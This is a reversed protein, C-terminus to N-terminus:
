ARAHIFRKIFAQEFPNEIQEAKDLVLDFM